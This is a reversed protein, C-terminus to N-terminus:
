TPDRPSRSLVASFIAFVREKVRISADRRKLTAGPLKRGDLIDAGDGTSRYNPSETKGSFRDTARMCAVTAHGPARTHSGVNVPCSAVHCFAVLYRRLTGGQSVTSPIHLRNM